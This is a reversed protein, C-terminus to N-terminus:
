ARLITIKINYVKEASGIKWNELSDFLQSIIRFGEKYFYLISIRRSPLFAYTITYM